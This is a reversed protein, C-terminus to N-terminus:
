RGSRTSRARRDLGSRSERASVVELAQAFTAGVATEDRLPALPIWYCAMPSDTRRRPPPRSRSDRREREARVPSRSSGRMRATSLEVVERLERERGLFATAPIPLNTRYLSKLAPFEGDGLQFVREPAGLDKFAISASTPSNPKSSRRRRRPSSCRGATDRPRSAPLATSTTASMARTASSLRERISASGCASRATAALREPSSRRPPSLARRLRSRSSSPTERRTWRSVATDLVAERIVHRHEALADAYAAAGLENLLSTSGEVDTFVFTVTGSPLDPRVRPIMRRDRRGLLVGSRLRCERRSTWHDRGEFEFYETITDEGKYHKANSKNVSPPMIHDESGGIFLLPARNPNKYNVWTEQHGPKFNAILGYAWIWNGPAPIHYRDYVKQSDEESLTNTFAYHFEDHTFGVAKHRNASGQPGPVAVQDAVPSLRARGGDTGLRDGRRRRRLRPRALAADADRRVLPGHHDAAHRAGHDVEAIHAVTAPM